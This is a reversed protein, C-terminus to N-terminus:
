RNVGTKTVGLIRRLKSMGRELHRQVSAKSIGLVDAVESMTWDASHVLWVVVRQREPLAALAGPLGPEVWPEGAVVASPLLVRHRRHMRGGLNRGVRYLYGVPNDMASVRTWNEWGYAMAEATAERGVDSGLAAILAGRLRADNAEVFTTFEDAKADHKLV